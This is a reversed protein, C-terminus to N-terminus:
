KNLQGEVVDGVIPLKFMEGKYAKYMLLIWSAFIALGVLGSALGFILGIVPIRALFSLVWSLVLAFLFWIISQLAHFRVFRNEKEMVLVVIGSLCCLAYSVLAAVNEPLGFVSKKEEM